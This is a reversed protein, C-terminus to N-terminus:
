MESWIKNSKEYGENYQCKVVIIQFNILQKKVLESDLESNWFISSLGFFPLWLDAECSDTIRKPPENSHM